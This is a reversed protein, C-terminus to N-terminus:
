PVAASCHMDEAGTWFTASWGSQRGTSAHVSEPPSTAFMDALHETFSTFTRATRTTMFQTDIILELDVSSSANVGEPRSLQPTGV